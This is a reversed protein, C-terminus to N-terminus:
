NPYVTKGSLDLNGADYAVNTAKTAATSADIADEIAAKEDPQYGKTWVADNKNAAEEHALSAETHLAALKTMASREEPTHNRTYQVRDRLIGAAQRHLLSVLRHRAAVERPDYVANPLAFRNANAAYFPLNRSLSVAKESYEGVKAFQNGHFPHGAVDGKAVTYRSLSKLLEHSSFGSSM